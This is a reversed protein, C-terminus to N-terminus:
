LFDLNFHLQIQQPHKQPIESRLSDTEAIFQALNGKAGEGDV